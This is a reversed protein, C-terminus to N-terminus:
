RWTYTHAQSSAEIWSRFFSGKLANRCWIDAGVRLNNLPIGSGKFKLSGCFTLCLVFYSVSCYLVFSALTRLLKSLAYVISSICEISWYDLNEFLSIQMFICGLMVCQMWTAINKLKFKCINKRWCYKVSKYMIISYKYM